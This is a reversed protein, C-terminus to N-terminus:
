LAAFSGEEGNGFSAEVYAPKYGDKDTIAREREAEFFRNLRFVIEKREYVWFEGRRVDKLRETWTLADNVAKDFLERCKEVETSALNFGAQNMARYFLEMAKHYTDGLQNAALGAEPEKKVECRLVRNMWYRFPCKGYDSLASASWIEPLAIKVTEARVHDVLYGNFSGASDSKRAPSGTRAISVALPELIKHRLEEVRPDSLSETLILENRGAWLIGGLCDRASLPERVSRAFPEVDAIAEAERKGQANEGPTKGEFFATLLFSPTLEDGTMQSIPCSLHCHKRARDVLSQFLALEFGPHFRPNLIDIEFRGWREVEEATLFGRQSSRKPFEGEVMGAIFVEDFMRNPALDAGCVLIANESRPQKRLNRREILHKLRGLYKEPRYSRKGTIAEEQLLGALCRQVERLAQAEEQADLLDNTEFVKVCRDLVTETRAVYETLTGEAPPTILDFFQELSARMENISGANEVPELGGTLEPSNLDPALLHPSDRDAPVADPASLDTVQDDAPQRKTFIERWQARGSVVKNRFSLRDLIDASIATFAFNEHNFYSSRLSSIVEFRKFDLGSLNLLRMILQVMPLSTLPVPQDLFYNLGAS